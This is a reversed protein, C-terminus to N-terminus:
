KTHIYSIQLNTWIYTVSQLRLYMTSLFGNKNVYKVTIINLKSTM